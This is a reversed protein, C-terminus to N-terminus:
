ISDSDSRSSKQDRYEWDAGGSPFGGYLAVGNRLQFTATRDGLTVGSGEDPKYVGEVIWIEDGNAAAALADQLYNYADDWSTGDGAGNANRNVYIRAALAESGAVLWLVVLIIRAYSFTKCYKKM